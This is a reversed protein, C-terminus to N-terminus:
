IIVGISGTLTTENCMVWDAGCAAYYAGSAGISNFYVIVPKDESFKKIADYIVDSATIEGGPSDVRLIVAKIQDDNQAQELAAKFDDVMSEGLSGSQGFGIVGELPIVAIKHDCKGTAAVLIEEDFPKAKTVKVRSLPSSGRTALASVLALNLVMSGFIAVVLVIIFCGSKKM